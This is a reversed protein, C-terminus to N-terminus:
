LWEKRGRELDDNAAEVFLQVDEPNQFGVSGGIIHWRQDRMEAPYPLRAGFHAKLWESWMGIDSGTKLQVYHNFYSNHQKLLPTTRRTM